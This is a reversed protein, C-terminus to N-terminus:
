VELNWYNNIFDLRDFQYGKNYMHNPSNKVVVDREGKIEVASYCKSTKEQASLPRGRVFM